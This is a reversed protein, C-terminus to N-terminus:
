FKFYINKISTYTLYIIDIIIIKWRLQYTDINYYMIIKFSEFSTWFEELFQVGYM